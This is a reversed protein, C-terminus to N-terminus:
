VVGIGVAFLFCGQGSNGERCVPVSKVVRITEQDGLSKAPCLSAGFHQQGGGRHRKIPPTRHGM